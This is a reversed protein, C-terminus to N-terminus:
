RLRAVSLKRRLSDLRGVASQDILRNDVFVRVGALLEPNIRGQLLVQKKLLSGVAVAIEALEGGGLPRASEVWGEVQGKDALACRRYSAPLGQLVELRRRAALVRVFNATLVHLKSALAEVLVQKRDAATRRDFLERLAGSEIQSAISDVDSGVADLAGKERALEFLATAYRTSVVNGFASGSM